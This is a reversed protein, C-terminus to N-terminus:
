VSRVLLPLQVHQQEHIMDGTRISLSSRRTSKGSGHLTSQSHLRTASERIMRRARGMCRLRDVRTDTKM